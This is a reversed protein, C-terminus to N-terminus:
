LGTNAEARRRYGGGQRVSERAPPRRASWTSRHTVTCRTPRSSCSMTRAPERRVALADLERNLDDVQSGQVRLGGHYISGLLPLELHHAPVHWLEFVTGDAGLPNEYVWRGQCEKIWRDFAESGVDPESQYLPDDSRRHVTIGFAM